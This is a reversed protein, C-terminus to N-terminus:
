HHHEEPFLENYKGCKGCKVADFPEGHFVDHHTVDALLRTKCAGCRYTLDGQGSMVPKGPEAELVIRGDAPQQIIRMEKQPM